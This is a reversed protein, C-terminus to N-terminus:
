NFVGHVVIIIVTMWICVSEAPINVVVFQYIFNVKTECAHGWCQACGLMWGVWVGKHIIEQSLLLAHIRNFATLLYCYSHSHSIVQIFSYIFPVRPRLPWSPYLPLSLLFHLFLFSQKEDDWWKEGKHDEMTSSLDDATNWISFVVVVVVFVFCSCYTILGGLDLKFHNRHAWNLLIEFCSDM